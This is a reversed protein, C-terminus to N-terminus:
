SPELSKDPKAEEVTAPEEKAGSAPANADANLPTPLAPLFSTKSQLLAEVAQSLAIIGAEKSLAGQFGTDRAEQVSRENLQMLTFLLMPIKPDATHITHAAQMGNMKPMALDLIVLDPRLTATKDVAELGNEAEGCVEWGSEELLRRLARRAAASDDAILIRAM